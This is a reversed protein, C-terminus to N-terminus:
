TPHQRVGIVSDRLEKLATEVQSHKGNEYELLEVNYTNKFSSRIAPPIGAGIVAYHPHSSQASLNVNELILQLDPDALSCGVFLATNLLFLSDLIKYFQANSQRAKFYQSRSLVIKSADSVCGHAKLILRTPSRLTNLANDEYYKCINYGDRAKGEQCYDDYIRDYNTTIVVKPDLELILEHIAGAKFRPRVFTEKLYKEFDAPNSADIIVEACDLLRNNKFLKVATRQTSKKTILKEIASLLFRDWLPPTVGGIGVCSASVGAGLVMICRRDALEEVLSTPWVIAM